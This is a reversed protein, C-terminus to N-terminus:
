SPEYGDVRLWPLKKEMIALNLNHLDRVTDVPQWYGYHKYAHLQNEQALAPLVEFEFSPNNHPFHKFVDSDLVFFGGNVWGGEGDPKEQFSTVQTESLSLAGFRAPPKVATLTSRRGHHDHFELLKSIDVDAVGDGYALLFRGGLLEKARLLRGGTETELGTDLVTVNWDDVNRNLVTHSGNGLNFTVSTSSMWYNSFYEKIQDGRYGALIVFDRIGHNSYNKMVHWLLPRGGAEVLPKPKFQTEESLRTGKGGALIVAIM